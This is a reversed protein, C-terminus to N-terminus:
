RLGGITETRLKRYISGLNCMMLFTNDESISRLSRADIRWTTPSIKQLPCPQVAYVCPVQQARLSSSCTAVAMRM